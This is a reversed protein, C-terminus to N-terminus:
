RSGHQDRLLGVSDELKDWAPQKAMDTRLYQVLSAIQADSLNHRFGPMYGNEPFAPDQVGQLVVRILNDPTPAYLNTNLWLPPQKGFLGAGSAGGDHCSLCAGQFLTAGASQAPYVTQLAHTSLSPEDKGASAADGADKKMMGAIYVALARTDAESIKSTGERVVPAMSGGAPGHQASYGTRLYDFLTDVTWDVPARSDHNLAHAHWGEADGGALYNSGAKEAGLQNRPSHCAACHGLAQSLYKGRNFEESADAQLQVPSTDLFLLNWGAMLARINFPFPLDTEPPQSSVAPQAMLYGYLAQMDEDTMKTFATYPFAPYLHKGDRDIGKRMARDFADFSWAGIGTQVDPTINTSYITGFPTDMAHGGANREGGTATHCVVCMGAAAVESGRTMTTESVPALTTPEMPEIAPRWILAFAAIAVLVLLALAGVAFKRSKRTKM